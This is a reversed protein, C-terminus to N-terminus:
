VLEVTKVLQTIAETPSTGGELVSIVASRLAESVAPKAYQDRSESSETAVEYLEQIAPVQQDADVLGIDNWAPETGVRAPILDIANAITQAGTTSTTLWLAFTTAAATSQSRANISLGYDLEGFIPSVSGGDVMIPFRTPMQLFPEPDRVGAAQMSSVASERGSYQAYWTGMQVMAAKQSMFANNADPYQTLGVVDDRIIGDDKMRSFIELGEAFVPDSWPREGKLASIWAGPEISGVITRWTEVVFGDSVAGMAMCDKGHARFIAAVDVWEDYTTPVEVGYDDFMSQNVWICGAAVGGMGVAAVSGDERTLGDHSFTFSKRWNTGLEEELAPRLDLGFEGFTGFDSNLGGLAVSFIDPGSNSTLGARLAAKYDSNEFNKYTVEIDPYTKNFTAIYKEAVGTDPTWSWWNISGSTASGAAGGSRVDTGGCGALLAPGAATALGIGALGVARRRSFVSTPWLEDAM